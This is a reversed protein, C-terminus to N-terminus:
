LGGRLLELGNCWGFLQRGLVERNWSSDFVLLSDPDRTWCSELRFPKVGASMARDLQLLLLAHDSSHRPLNRILVRPFLTTWEGNALGKDLRERIQQRESRGNCWTFHLSSSGVDM